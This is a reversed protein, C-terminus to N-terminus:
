SFDMAGIATKSEIGATSFLFYLLDNTEGALLFVWLPIKPAAPKVAFGAALHGIGSM